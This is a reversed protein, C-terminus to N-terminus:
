QMSDALKKKQFPAEYIASRFLIFLNKTTIDLINHLYWIFDFQLKKKEESAVSDHFPKCIANVQSDRLMKSLVGGEPTCFQPGRGWHM